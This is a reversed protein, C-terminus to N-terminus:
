NLFFVIAARVYVGAYHKEVNRLGTANRKGLMHMPETKLIIYMVYMERYIVRLM